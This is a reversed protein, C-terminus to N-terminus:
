NVLSVTFTLTNGNGTVTATYVGAGNAGFLDSGSAKQFKWNAHYTCSNGNQNISASDSFGNGVVTVNASPGFDGRFQLEAAANSSINKNGIVEGFPAETCPTTQVTECYILITETACTTKNPNGGSGSQTACVELQYTGNAVGATTFVGDRTKTRGAFTWGGGTTVNGAAIAYQNSAVITPTADSTRLTEVVTAGDGATTAITYPASVMANPCTVTPTDFSVSLATGAAVASITVVAAM